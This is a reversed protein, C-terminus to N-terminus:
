KRGKGLRATQRVLNPEWMQFKRNVIIGANRAGGEFSYLDMEGRKAAKLVAQRTVGKRRAAEASSILDM